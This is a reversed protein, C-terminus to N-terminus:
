KAEQVPKAVLVKERQIRIQDAEEEKRTESETAQPQTPDTAQRINNNM